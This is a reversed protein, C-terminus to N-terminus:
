ICKRLENSQKVWEVGWSEWQRDACATREAVGGDRPQIHRRKAEHLTATGQQPCHHPWLRFALGHAHIWQQLLCELWGASSYNLAMSGDQTGVGEQRLTVLTRELRDCSDHHLSIAVSRILWWNKLSIFFFIADSKRTGGVNYNNNKLMNLNKERSTIQHM